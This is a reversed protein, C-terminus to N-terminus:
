LSFPYTRWCLFSNRAENRQKALRDSQPSCGPDSLLHSIAEDDGNSGEALDVNSIARAHPDDLRRMYVMRVCQRMVRQLIYYVLRDRRGKGLRYTHDVLAAVMPYNLHHAARVLCLIRGQLLM